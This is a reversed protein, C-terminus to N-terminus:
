RTILVLQHALRAVAHKFPDLTCRVLVDVLCFVDGLFGALLNVILDLRQGSLVAGLVLNLRLVASFLVPPFIIKGGKSDGNNRLSIRNGVAWQATGSIRFNFGVQIKLSGFRV